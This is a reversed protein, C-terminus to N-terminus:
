QIIKFIDVLGLPDPVFVYHHPSDLGLFSPNMATTNVEYIEENTAPDIAWLYGNGTAVHATALIIDTVPDYILGVIIDAGEDGIQISGEYEYSSLDYYDIRGFQLTAVYLTDSDPVYAMGPTAPLQPDPSILPTHLDMTTILEHTWGNIVAVTNDGECTVFVRYNDEDITMTTPMTGELDIRTINPDDMDAYFYGVQNDMYLSVWVETMNEYVVFDLPMSAPNGKESPVNITRKLGKGDISYVSIDEEHIPTGTDTAVFIEQKFGCLGMGGTSYLGPFGDIVYFNDDIGMIELGDTGPLPAFYCTETNQDFIGEIPYNLMEISEVFDLPPAIDILFINYADIDGIIPVTGTDEVSILLPYTGLGAELDNHVLTTYEAYNPFDASFNANIIGNFIDPAELHVAAITDNGQWDYVRILVFTEGGLPTLAGDFTATIRYAELSNAKMPFDDPVDPNDINAPSAWSADVAYGFELPISFPDGPFRITFIREDHDDAEFVRREILTYFARFPNLTTSMDIGNVEYKGEVYEFIPRDYWGPPYAAPSWLTTYGDANVITYEDNEYTSIKLGHEDFYYTGNFIAIGRVDFGTFVEKKYDGDTDLPHIIGIEVELDGDENISNEGIVLCTTCMTQELFRLINLHLEADRFPTATLEQTGPDWHMNWYGWLYRGGGATEPDIQALLASNPSYNALEGSSPDVPQGSCAAMLCLLLVSATLFLNRVMKKGGYFPFIGFKGRM